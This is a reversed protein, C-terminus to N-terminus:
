KNWELPNIDNYSAVKKFMKKLQGFFKDVEARNESLRIWYKYVCEFFEKYKNFLAKTMVRKKGRTSEDNEEMRKLTEYINEIEPKIYDRYFTIEYGFVKIDPHQWFADVRKIFLSEAIDFAVEEPNSGGPLTIIHSSLNPNQDGDLICISRMTARLIQSDNFINKLAECSIKIDALYFLRKAKVFDSDPNMDCWCEFLCNLFVRAEEDETFVPIQKQYYLDKKLIANLSMKIKYIDVDEMLYVKDIEDQLYLVNYKNDLANEILTMSHSTFVFQIKYEDSCKKFLDLLRLQYAPHLTADLEDVLMISETESSSDISEFYFQLSVLATLIIFLNDEGASITNSDIGKYNTGFETRTKIDGMKQATGYMIDIGTFQKYYAAIRAQYDDPLKKAVNVIDEDKQYEGFPALRMLSLYIVPCSPLSEGRGRKYQPKVSYRNRLLTKSNHRRFDLHSNDQYYVEYLIGKCGPAPDNYTKDGKTLTELKPNMSANIFRITEISKANKIRNDNKTVAKFSNSILHLVSTKCTGNTGSLLNIDKNFKLELNDLKRYKHIYIKKIM